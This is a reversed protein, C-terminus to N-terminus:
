QHRMVESTNSAWVSSVMGTPAVELYPLVEDEEIRVHQCRALSLHRHLEKRVPSSHKYATFIYVCVCPLQQQVQHINTCQAAARSDAAQELRVGVTRYVLISTSEQVLIDDNDEMVSDSSPKGLLM